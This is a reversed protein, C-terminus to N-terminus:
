ASFQYSPLEDSVRLVTDLSSRTSSNCLFFFRSLVLPVGGRRAGARIGHAHRPKPVGPHARFSVM